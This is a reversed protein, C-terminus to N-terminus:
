HIIASGAGYKKQEPKKISIGVQLPSGLKREWRLVVGNRFYVKSDGYFWIDGAVKTPTGQIMIVDGISSGYTFQKRTIRKEEIKEEDINTNADDAPKQGAQKNHDAHKQQHSTTNHQASQLNQHEPKVLNDETSFDLTSYSAIIVAISAFIITKSPAKNKEPKRTKQSKTFPTPQPKRQASNQDTTEPRPKPRARAQEIRPLAGNKRYYKSLQQYAKNLRKIKEEAKNKENSNDKFRDPHWQQIQLRYAKRLTNWSCDTNSKLIKYCDEFSYEQKM